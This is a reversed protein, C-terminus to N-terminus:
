IKQRPIMIRKNEKLIEPLECGNAQCIAGSTTHYRKAIDWMSEGKSAFYIVIGPMSDLNQSDEDPIEVESIYSIDYNDLIKTDFDLTFKVEVANATMLSFSINDADCVVSIDPDKADDAPVSYTFPIEKKISHVPADDLESIYQIYVDTTGSVKAKGNELKASSVYPKATVNYIKSVPPADASLEIVEKVSTQENSNLIMRKLSANSRSLSLDKYPSYLDLSINDSMETYVCTSANVCASFEILSMDGDGDSVANYTFDTLSYEVECLDRDGVNDVSLVETFPIEGGLSRIEGATDVYLASVEVIGKAVLKTNITKIERGSVKIDAKLIEEVMESGSQVPFCNAVEFENEAYGSLSFSPIDQTKCPTEIDSVVSSVAQFENTCVVNSDFDIETKINVKRSNVASFDISLVEAKVGSFDIADANKVELQHTFPLRARISKVKSPENKEDSLYVISCDLNGSLTIYDKQIHNESLLPIAQAMLVKKVDPQYDPVIIDNDFTAQGSSVEVDGYTKIIKKEIEWSM